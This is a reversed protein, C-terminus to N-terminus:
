SCSKENNDKFENKRGNKFDFIMNFFEKAGFFNQLGVAYVIDSGSLTPTLIFILRGM